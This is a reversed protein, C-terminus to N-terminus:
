VNFRINLIDGDQVIYEKGELRLKGHAKVENMGGLAILDDYAVVEARIFGKQLDTHIVGAAEPATAGRRVTWARCEDPGVTFFSQLGLLDYSLRIMRNLSPEEIGYEALFVQAEEPPLQAIEMELKGQLAVVQSHRHPYHIVPPTQGESLNLVVLMPKRSLFGFSTLAKEEEADVDVDRLPIEEALAARFREFLNLEREIVARDRGGGKKKEDALRELKREVSILDNLILESEMSAIDRVPDVSGAPHPVADDEFCRVVQIFGDMQTLQNLLAGSIGTKAASGELGAVDAYTVKAYITKKPKFMASLRDVRPDPVDVVATHVEIKGASLGTPQTGRTLANFLTTKGSQPLGIIGLKM